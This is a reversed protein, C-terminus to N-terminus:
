SLFQLLLGLDVDGPTVDEAPDDSLDEAPADIPDADPSDIPAQDLSSPTPEAATMPQLEPTRPPPGAARPRSPPTRFVYVHTAGDILGGAANLAELIRFEPSPLPYLNPGGIAGFLSFTWKRRVLPEVVVQADILIERQALVDRLEAELESPTLGEIAIRGILPLSIEGREDIQVQAPSETGPALLEFIRILATDGSSFRYERMSRELDEPRPDTAGPVGPPTDQIGLTARIDITRENSFTGVASPDIPHNLLAYLCGSTPSILLTLALLGLRSGYRSTTDLRGGPGGTSETALRGRAGPDHSATLTSCDLQLTPMKQEISNVTAKM